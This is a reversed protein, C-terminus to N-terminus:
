PHGAPIDGATLKPVGGTTLTLGAQVKGKRDVLEIGRRGDASVFMWVGGAGERDSLGLGPEGDAGLSFEGRVQGKGDQVRISPRGDGYLAVKGRLGGERDYLDVSPNGEGDLAMASRIAGDADRLVIEPGDGIMGLEIRSRGGEDEIVFKRAVVTREDKDARAAPSLTGVAVAGALAGVAASVL